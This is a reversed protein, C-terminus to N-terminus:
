VGDLGVHEKDLQNPEPKACFYPGNVGDLDILNIPNLRFLEVCDMFMWLKKLIFIIM